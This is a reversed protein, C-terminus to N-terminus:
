PITVVAANPDSRAKQSVEGSFIFRDGKETPVATYFVLIPRYFWSLNICQRFTAAMNWASSKREGRSCFLRLTLTAPQAHM